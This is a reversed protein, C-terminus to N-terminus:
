AVPLCVRVDLGDEAPLVVACREAPAIIDYAVPPGADFVIERVPLRSLNTVLLGARQHVVHLRELGALGERRRLRDIVALAQRVGAEDLGAVADRVRRALDALSAGALREREITANVLAVACGFYTPPFSPLLRRVDVPCSLFTTQEGPAAWAAVHERWLWAAVVDNHSLRVPCEAQAEALLASLEAKPFVRRRWRLRDRPIAQRSEGLFLGCGSIGRSEPPVLGSSDAQLVRRDLWPPPVDRGHFVRSWASLFYFYSFGDVIAHSLGVGLVSGGPTRTLRVRALPRGPVSEVPDVFAHRDAAEAFGSSSAAVEFTCGDEGPELGYSDDPLRVLRSGAAPFVELTRRFSAALRDADMRGGYAFVFELPYAGVGTFVHDIPSLRQPDRSGV